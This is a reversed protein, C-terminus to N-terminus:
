KLSSLIRENHQIKRLAYNGQYKAAGENYARIADALDDYLGLSIDKGKFSVRAQWCHKRNGNKPAHWYVGVPKALGNTNWANQSDTAPRLNELRNDTVIGNIHDIIKPEDGNTMKWVIRHVMFLRSDVWARYYGEKNPAMCHSGAMAKGSQVKRILYGTLPDYSFLENLRENSPLAMRGDPTKNNSIKAAMKSKTCLKCEGRVGFKGNAEKYFDSLPKTEGCKKCSKM